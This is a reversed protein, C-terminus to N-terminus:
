KTRRILPAYQVKSGPAMELYGTDGVYRRIKPAWSPRVEASRKPKRDPDDEISWIRETPWNMVEAQALACFVCVDKTTGNAYFVRWNDSGFCLPNITLECM